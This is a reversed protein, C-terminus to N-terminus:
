ASAATRAACSRPSTGALVAYMWPMHNTVAYMWPMRNPVAYMWPMHNPVAYMWPLRSAQCIRAAAQHALVARAPSMHYAGNGPSAAATSGLSAIVLAPVALKRALQARATGPSLARGSGARTRHTRVVVSRLKKRTEM